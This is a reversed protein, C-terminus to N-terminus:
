GLIMMAVVARRGDHRTLLSLRLTGTLHQAMSRINAKYSPQSHNITSKSSIHVAESDITM